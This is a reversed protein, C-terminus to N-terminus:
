PIENRWDEWIEDEQIQQKHRKFQKSIKKQDKFDLDNSSRKDLNKRKLHDRRLNKRNDLNDSNAM